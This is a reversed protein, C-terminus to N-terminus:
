PTFFNFDLWDGGKWPPTSTTLLSACGGSLHQAKELCHAARDYVAGVSSVSTLFSTM